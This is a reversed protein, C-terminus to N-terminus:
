LNSLKKIKLKEKFFRIYLDYVLFLSLSIIEIWIIGNLVLLMIQQDISPNLNLFQWADGFQNIIGKVWYNTEYYISVVIVIYVTIYIESKLTKRFSKIILLLIFWIIIEGLSGSIYLWTGIIPSTIEPHSTYALGLELITGIEHIPVNYFLLIWSHNIEHFFGFLYALIIYLGFGLIIGNVTNKVGKYKDRESIKLDNYKFLIYIIISIASFIILLFVKYMETIYFFFFAYIFSTYFVFGIIVAKKVYKLSNM